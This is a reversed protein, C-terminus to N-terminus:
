TKIKEFAKEQKATWIYLFGEKLLERLPDTLTNFDKIFRKMYNALGLFRRLSKADETAKANKIEEVKEPNPRIGEKSFIFVYFELSTKCFLCKALHLTIGKEKCKQLVKALIEDHMSDNPM